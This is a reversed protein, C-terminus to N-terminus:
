LLDDEEREKTTPEVSLMKAIEPKLYEAGFIYIDPVFSGWYRSLIDNDKLKEWNNQFYTFKLNM